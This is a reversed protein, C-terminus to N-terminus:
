RMRDVQREFASQEAAPTDTEAEPRPRPMPIQRGAIALRPRKRPLPVFEAPEAPPAMRTAGTDTSAEPAPDAPWPALSPPDLREPAAVSATVEERPPAVVKTTVVPAPPPAIVPQQAVTRPKPAAPVTATHSALLMPAFVWAAILAVGLTSLIVAVRSIRSPRQNAVETTTHRM